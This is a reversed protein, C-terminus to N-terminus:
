HRCIKKRLVQVASQLMCGTAETHIVVEINNTGVIEKIKAEWKTRLEVSPGLHPVWRSPPRHDGDQQLVTTGKSLQIKGDVEKSVTLEIGEKTEPTRVQILAAAQAEGIKQNSFRLTLGPELTPLKM